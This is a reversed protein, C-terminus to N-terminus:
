QMRNTLTMGPGGLNLQLRVAPTTPHSPNNAATRLSRAWPARVDM